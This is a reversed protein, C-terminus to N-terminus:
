SKGSRIILARPNKTRMGDLVSTFEAMVDASLTNTSAGEKDFTLWVINDRDTELKWHKHAM